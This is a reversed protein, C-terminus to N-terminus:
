TAKMMSGNLLRIRLRQTLCGSQRLPRMHLYAPRSSTALAWSVRTMSMILEENSLSKIFERTMPANLLEEDSRRPTSVRPQVGLGVEIMRARRWGRKSRGYRGAKAVATV